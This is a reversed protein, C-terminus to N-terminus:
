RFMWCMGHADLEEDVTFVVLSGEPYTNEMDLLDFSVQEEDHSGHSM